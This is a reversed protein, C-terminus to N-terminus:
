DERPLKKAWMNDVLNPYTRGNEDARQKAAEKQSASLPQGKKGKPNPKEWPPKATKRM